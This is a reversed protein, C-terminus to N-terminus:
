SATISGALHPSKGLQFCSSEPGGRKLARASVTVSFGLKRAAKAERRQRM